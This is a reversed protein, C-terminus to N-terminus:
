AVRRREEVAPPEERGPLKKRLRRESGALVAWAVLTPALFLFFTSFILWALEASHDSFNWTSIFDSLRNSM